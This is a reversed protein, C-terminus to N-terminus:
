KGVYFCGQARASIKTCAAKAADPSAFGGVRLRYYTGNPLVAKIIEHPNGGIVDGLKGKIRAWNSEAEAQSGYAGLQVKFAGNAAAPAAPKPTEAVPATEQAPVTPAIIPKPIETGKPMEKTVAPAALKVPLPKPAVEKVVEVPKEAVPTAKEAVPAEPVEVPKAAEPAAEAPAAAEPEANAKAEDKEDQTRLKDNVWTNATAEKPESAVIEQSPPLPEEPEPLLKEVKEEGEGSGDIANYITKDQHPFEEGGPNEPATKYASSDAEITVIDDSKVSESGSQYAYWALAVFGSAALGLVLWSVARSAGAPGQGGRGQFDGFDPKM